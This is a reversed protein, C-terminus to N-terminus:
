PLNGDVTAANGIATSDGHFATPRLAYFQEAEERSALGKYHELLIAADREGLLASTKSADGYYAFHYTAATHRLGDQIWKCGLADRFERFRRRFTSHCGAFVQEPLPRASLWAFLCEGFTDGAPAEVFRRRTKKTASANLIVIRRDLRIFEVPLRRLETPRIGPFLGLVMHLYLGYNPALELIRRCQAVDYFEIEGTVVKPRGIAAVPNEECYRNKICWIFFQSAKSLYHCRSQPGRGQVSAMDSLWDRIEDRTIEHAKRDGFRRSFDGLRSRLDKMTDDALERAKQEKLYNQVLVNVPPLSAFRIVHKLVYETAQRLTWGNASLLRDCEWAEHLIREPVLLAEASSGDIREQEAEAQKKDSYYKRIRRGGVFAQVMWYRQGSPYEGEKITATNM